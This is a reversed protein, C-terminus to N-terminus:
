DRAQSVASRNTVENICDQQTCLDTTFYLTPFAQSGLGSSVTGWFRRGSVAAECWGEASEQEKVASPSIELAM